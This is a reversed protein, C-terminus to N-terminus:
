PSWERAFRESVLYHDLRLDIGGGVPGHRNKMVRAQIGGDEGLWMGVVADADQELAGSDRLDSLFPEGKREDAKRSLQALALVPVGCRKAMEQLEASVAEIQEHRRDINRSPQMRQVYDVVILGLDRGVVANRLETMRRGVLMTLRSDLAKTRQWATGHESVSPHATDTEMCFLRHSLEGHTMEASILLVGKGDRATNRAATLGLATKGVSTRAAVYILRGASLPVQTDLSPIGWVGLLPPECTQAFAEEHSAITLAPGVPEFSAVTAMAMELADEGPQELIASAEACLQALQRQQALGVLRSASWGVVSMPLLLRDTMEFCEALFTREADHAEFHARVELGNPERDENAMVDAFFSWVSAAGFVTLHEPALGAAAAETYAGPTALATVYLEREAHPDAIM